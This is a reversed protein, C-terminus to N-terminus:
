SRNESQGGMAYHYLVSNTIFSITMLIIGMAISVSYQGMNNNMAIFTTMVRTFGRINGGVIMVAGVESIARGFGTVLAIMIVSKLELILLILINWKQAGLTKGTQVVEYGSTGAQNFIIGTIVPTVLITQAIIMATPTYMLQLEGFPGSRALFLATFLGIIVPPFSMFTYLLRSVIRKGKFDNIGLLIGLPIGILTAYLTSSFSVYLSLFVIQIIEPDFSFILRFAEV